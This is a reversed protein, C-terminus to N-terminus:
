SWIERLHPLQTKFGLMSLYLGCSPYNKTLERLTGMPDYVTNEPIEYGICQSLLHLKRSMWAEVVVPVDVQELLRDLAEHRGLIPQTVIFAAGADLKRRMKEMEHDRPEYPNFAVGLEFRGGYRRHIHRILEVSTVSATDPADVQDPRLKPLRDSGDGSIILLNDVGLALCDDLIRELDGPTHFTNLHISLQGRPASLGLERIVETGQFSLLGMPNDTICVCHGQGILTRYKGAFEQLKGELEELTRVNQKPTQLEVHFVKGDIDQRVTM